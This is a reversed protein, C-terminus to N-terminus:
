DIKVRATNNSENSELVSNKPDSLLFLSKGDADGKVRFSMGLRANGGPRLKSISGGQVRDDSATSLSDDASLYVVAKSKPSASEGINSVQAIATIFSISRDFFHFTREHVDSWAAVLDPGPAFTAKSTMVNWPGGTQTEHEVVFRVGGNGDTAVCPRWDDTIDSAADPYVPQPATWSKGNDTSFAFMQDSDEGAHQPLMEQTSWVAYWRNIGDFIVSAYSDTKNDVLADVNMPVPLTWSRGVDETRQVFLDYDEDSDLLVTYSVLWHGASDTCLRPVSSTQNKGLALSIPYPRTWHKGDDASHAEWVRTAKSLEGEFTDTTDYVAIWNGHGDGLFYPNHSQGTEETDPNLRVRNSWTAGADTSRAFFIDRNFSTGPQVATWSAIWTGSGDTSLNVTFDADADSAANSNVVDPSSWTLGNDASRSVAVDFDFGGQSTPVTTSAWAAVWNGAKDTSLSVNDDSRDSQVGPTSILTPSTWTDGDDASRTIYIRNQPDDPYKAHFACVWVGAGDTALQPHVAEIAAQPSLPARPTWGVARSQTTFACLVTAALLRCANLLGPANM